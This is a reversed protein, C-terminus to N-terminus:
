GSNFLIASSTEDEEFQYYPAKDLIGEKDQDYYPAKDLIGEKDQTRLDPYLSSSGTEVRPKRGDQTLLPDM